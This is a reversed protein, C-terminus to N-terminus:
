AINIERILYVRDDMPLGRAAEHERLVRLAPTLEHEAIPRFGHREYFPANWAVEAFTILTIGFFTPIMLLLRRGLYRLM